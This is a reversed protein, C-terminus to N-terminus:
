PGGGNGPPLIPTSVLATTPSNHAADRLEVFHSDRLVGTDVPVLPLAASLLVNMSEVIAEGLSKKAQLKARLAAAMAAKVAPNRAPASLYKAQGGNPHNATMDEHVYVAYPASFGVFGHMERKGALSKAKLAQIVNTIDLIDNSM